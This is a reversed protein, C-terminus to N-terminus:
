VVSGAAACLRLALLWADETKRQNRKLHLRVKNTTCRHWICRWGCGWSACVQGLCSCAYKMLSVQQQPPPYQGYGQQPPPGYYGPQQPAPYSM